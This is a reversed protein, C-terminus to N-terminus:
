NIMTQTNKYINHQKQKTKKNCQVEKIDLDNIKQPVIWTIIINQTQLIFKLWMFALMCLIYYKM